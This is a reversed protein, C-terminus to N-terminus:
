NRWTNDHYFMGLYIDDFIKYVFFDIVHDEGNVDRVKIGVTIKVNM